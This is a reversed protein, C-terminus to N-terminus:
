SMATAARGAMAMVLARTTGLVLPGTGATSPGDTAELRIDRVTSMSPVTFDYKACSEAARTVMDIPYRGSHSTGTESRGAMVPLPYEV